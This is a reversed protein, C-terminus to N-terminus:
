KELKNKVIYGPSLLSLERKYVDMVIHNKYMSFYTVSVNLECTFARVDRPCGEKVSNNSQLRKMERIKSRKVPFGYPLWTDLGSLRVM